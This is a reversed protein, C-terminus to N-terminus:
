AVIWKALDNRGYVTTLLKALANAQKESLHIAVFKYWKGDDGVEDYAWCPADSVQLGRVLVSLFQIVKYNKEINQINFTAEM